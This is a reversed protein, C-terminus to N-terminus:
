LETNCHQPKDMRYGEKLLSPIEKSKHGPYPVAGLM